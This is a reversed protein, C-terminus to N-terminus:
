KKILDSYIKEYQIAEEDIRPPYQIKEKMTNLKRPNRCIHEICKVLQETKCSEFLIGSANDIFELASGITNSAIIPMNHALGELLALCYTEYWISSFIEVDIGSFIKSLDEYQYEGMFQIRPDSEAINMLHSFYDNQNLHSGYIKLCINKDPVKM